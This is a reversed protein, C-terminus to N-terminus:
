DDVNIKTYTVQETNFLNKGGMYIKNNKVPYLWFQAPHFLM